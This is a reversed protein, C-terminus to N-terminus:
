LQSVALATHLTVWSWVADSILYHTQLEVWEPDEAGVFGPLHEIDGSLRQQIKQYTATIKEFSVSEGAYM